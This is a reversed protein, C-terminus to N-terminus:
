IQHSLSPSKENGPTGMKGQQSTMEEGLVDDGVVGGGGCM